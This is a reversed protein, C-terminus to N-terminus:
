RARPGRPAGAGPPGRQLLARGGSGGASVFVLAPLARKEQQIFEPSKLIFKPHNRFNRFINLTRLLQYLTFVLLLFDSFRMSIGVFM